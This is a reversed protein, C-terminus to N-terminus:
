TLNGGEGTGTGPVTEPVKEPMTGLITQFGLKRGFAREFLKRHKNAEWLEVAPEELAVLLLRVRGPEIVVALDRVRLARSRELSEALRLCLALRALIEGDGPAMLKEYPALRPLGKHHYQILLMLLAHERHTFGSLPDMALVYSGHRHHRYYHVHIGIDHLAAAADLLQAEGPGLGHLPALGLFLARALHRVHRTHASDLGFRAVLNDVSFRRVGPVLHPSPLLHQYFVGERVGHGSIFLGDRGGARLLWRYVLAGALIVDARDSNIGSIRARGRASKGLLSDTIEELDGRSFFYGHLLDLPYAKHKQVARALNRVTGGMAILPVPERRLDAAVPELHAAVHDELAKIESRKPPDSTLFAETLRVAGLPYAGGGAHRRQRMRSVQASGGGLDMVWAGPLDFGNAVALVGIEAEEEGSLVRIEVGLPAVAVQFAEKNHADRLASTGLTVLENLGSAAAYDVFLDLAARGREIAGSTLEGSVGLGEGLRVPERIVDVLRYWAGPEYEYVVMRANNSGLDVIGILKAVALGM